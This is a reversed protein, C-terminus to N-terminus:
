ELISAYQSSVWGSKGDTMQIEYWGNKQSLMKYTEGPNVQGIEEGMPEVRVRLFGTPTDSIKVSVTDVQDSSTATVLPDIVADKKVWGEKDESVGDTARIRVDVWDGLVSLRIVETTKTLSVVVASTVSPDKRVNVKAGEPVSVRVIDEGGKGLQSDSEETEAVKIDGSNQNEAGTKTQEAQVQSGGAQKQGRTIFIRTVLATAVISVIVVFTFPLIMNSVKKQYNIPKLLGGTSRHNSEKRRKGRIVKMSLSLWIFGAVIVIIMGWVALTQSGGVFGLFNGASSAQTALDQLKSIKNNVGDLELMAERYARIKAEPTVAYEQLSVIKSLSVEIDSSLTVGQAFFSTKELPRSLDAVQKKLSAIQEDSVKWIDNVRVQVTRTEGAALTFEGGVFYQNKESDYAVKLGSDKEIIDEEKVEPPLYYKLPVTQKVITSPNTIITKFVISGEELWTNAFAKSATKSLYLRNTALVGQIALVKNKLEKDTPKGLFQLSLVQDIKPLINVSAISKRLSDILTLKEDVTKKNWSALVRNIEDDKKDFISALEQTEKIKGYLTPNSSSDSTTGVLSEINGLSTLLDKLDNEPLEDKGYLDVSRSISALNERVAKKESMLNTLVGFDWYNALYGIQGSINTTSNESDGVLTLMEDLYGQIESESFKRWKTSLLYAKSSVYQTNIYLQGAITKTTDLKKTLDQGDDELVNEIIPKNVLKEVLDRTQTMTKKLDTVNNNITTINTQTNIGSIDSQTALKKTSSIEETTLSRTSNGWVDAALNGFSSLTRTSTAWMDAVLTGFSSLTRGSYGWVATAIDDSSAGTSTAKIEFSKDLCLHDTGSDCCVQSRYLGTTAPSTFTYSYWGDSQAAPTMVLQDQYLDGNPAHTTLKCTADNIPAYSDNYLFEGITCSASPACIQPGGSAARTVSPSVLAAIILLATLKFKKKTPASLM